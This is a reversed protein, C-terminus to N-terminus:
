FRELDTEKDTICPYYSIGKGKWVYGMGSKKKKIAIRTKM